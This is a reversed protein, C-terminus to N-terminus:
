KRRDRIEGWAAGGGIALTPVTGFEVIPELVAAVPHEAAYQADAERCPQDCFTGADGHGDPDGVTTPSNQVYSYLNLSQPNGFHAYPVSTPKAAWDPTMFRGLSSAYYRAGFEDLNSETDREKGTSNAAISAYNPTAHLFPLDYNCIEGITATPQPSPWDYM